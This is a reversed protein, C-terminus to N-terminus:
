VGGQLSSTPYGHHVKCSHDGHGGNAAAPEGIRYVMGFRLTAHRCLFYLSAPAPAPRPGSASASAPALAARPALVAAPASAYAPALDNASARIIVVAVVVAFVVAVVGAVAVAISVVVASM